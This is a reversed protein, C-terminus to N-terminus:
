PERVLEYVDVSVREDDVGSTADVVCVLDDLRAHAEGDSLHTAWGTAAFSGDEGVRGRGGIEVLLVGGGDVEIAGRLEPLYVGDERIRPRNAGRFRGAVRGECRGEAVGFREAGAAWNAEYGFRLRYLHELRM